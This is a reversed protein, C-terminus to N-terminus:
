LAGDYVFEPSVFKMERPWIHETLWTQLPVDDAVGRLLTMATHTHANVLGPMLVHTDLRVHTRPVYSADAETAPVVAVIRGADALLAHEELTQAPEIPLIWRADVRLDVHRPLATM